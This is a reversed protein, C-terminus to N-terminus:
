EKVETNVNPAAPLPTWLEPDFGDVEEGYLEIQRIWGYIPVHNHKGWRCIVRGADETWGLIETGDKPATEIPQWTPVVPAAQALSRAIDARVYPVDYEFINDKCWTVESHDCKDFPHADDEGRQLWIREPWDSFNGILEDTLSVTSAPPAAEELKRAVMGLVSGMCGLLTADDTPVASSLGVLNVVRRLRKANFEQEFSEPKVKRAENLADIAAKSEALSAAIKQKGDESDLWVAIREKLPQQDTLNVTSAPPAAYLPTVILGNKESWRRADEENGFWIRVNGNEAYSAWAVPQQDTQVPSDNPSHAPAETQARTNWAAIASEATDKSGLRLDCPVSDCEVWFEGGHEYLEAFEGCCPCPQLAERLNAENNNM